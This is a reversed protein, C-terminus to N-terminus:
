LSGVIIFIGLTIMSRAEAASDRISNLGLELNFGTVFPIRRVSPVCPYAILPYRDRRFLNDVIM